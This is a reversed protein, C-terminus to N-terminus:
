SVVRGEYKRIVCVTRREPSQEAEKGGVRYVKGQHM